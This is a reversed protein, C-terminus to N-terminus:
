YTYIRTIKSYQGHISNTIVETQLRCARGNSIMYDKLTNYVLAFFTPNTEDLYLKVDKGNHKLKNYGNRADEIWICTDTLVIIHDVHYDILLTQAYGAQALVGLLVAAFFIKKLM